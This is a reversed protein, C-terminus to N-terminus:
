CECEGEPEEDIAGPEWDGADPDLDWAKNPDGPDRRRVLFALDRALQQWWTHLVDRDERGGEALQAISAQRAAAFAAHAAHRANSWEEAAAEAETQEELERRPHPGDLRQVIQLAAPAFAQLRQVERVEGYTQVLPDPVAALAARIQAIRM